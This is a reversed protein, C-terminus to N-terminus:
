IRNPTSVTRGAWSLLRQWHGRRMHRIPDASDLHRPHGRLQEDVSRPAVGCVARRELDHCGRGLIVQRGDGRGALRVDVGRDGGRARLDVAAFPRLHVAAITPQEEVPEGVGDLAVDVREGRELREVDTTGRELGLHDVQGVDDVDDPVERAPRVLDLAAPDGGSGNKPIVRWAYVIRSGTPTTPAIEAQFAGASMADQFSPGASAAPLATTRLGASSADRDVSHIAFSMSSTPKGPPTTLTTGPKPSVAPAASTRWGPTSLSLKVPLGSTPRSIATWAARSKLFTM